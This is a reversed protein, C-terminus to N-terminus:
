KEEEEEEGTSIRTIDKRMEENVRKFNENEDGNGLQISVWTPSMLRRKKITDPSSLFPPSQLHPASLLTSGVAHPSDPYTSLYSHASQSQPHHPLPSLGTIFAEFGDASGGQKPNKQPTEGPELGLDALAGPSFVLGGFMDNQACNISQPTMSQGQFLSQKAASGPAFANLSQRLSLPTKPAPSTPLSMLGQVAAAAAAAAPAASASPVPTSESSNGSSARKWRKKPPPSPMLKSEPPDSASSEAAANM